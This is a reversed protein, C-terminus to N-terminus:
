FDLGGFDDTNGLDLDADSDSDFGTSLDADANLSSDYSDEVGDGSVEYDTGYDAEEEEDGRYNPNDHEDEYIDEYEYQTQARRKIVIIIIIIIVIVLIAALVLLLILWWPFASGQAAYQFKYTKVFDEAFEFNNTDKLAVEVTYWEGGVLETVSVSNGASDKYIYQVVDDYNGTYSSTFNVKGNNGWAGSRGDNRRGM